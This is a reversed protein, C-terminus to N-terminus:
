ADVRVHKAAVLLGRPKPGGQVAAKATTVAHYCALPASPLPRSLDGGRIDNGHPRLPGTRGGVLSGLGLTTPELGM